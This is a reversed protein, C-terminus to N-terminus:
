LLDGRLIESIMDFIAKAEPATIINPDNMCTTIIDGAINTYDPQKKAMEFIVDPSVVGSLWEKSFYNICWIYAELEQNSKYKSMDLNSFLRNINKVAKFTRFGSHEMTLIKVIQKLISRRFFVSIKDIKIDKSKSIENQKKKQNRAM